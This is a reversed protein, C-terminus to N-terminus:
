AGPSGFVGRPDTWGYSERYSAKFKANETDFDNDQGFGPARREFFKMGDPCNTKLFWADEDTLYHNVTYDLDSETRIANIDNNATGSEQTSKLIRSAIFRLQRPVILKTGKVAIQLGRDDTFGDIDIMAQELSAHSLDAATSLENSFTGGAVNPHDTACMEKGDGGTYASNFARNLVNAAAVERSQRVSMGLARAQKFALNYQEDEMMERTVIFGLAYTAHTYRTTYGQRVSDYSIGSGQPKKKLLGFGSLSVDEEYSKNSTERDLFQTFEMPHDGYGMGYFKNVGPWIAKAITGTNMVGAM